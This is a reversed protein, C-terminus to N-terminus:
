LGRSKRDALVIETIDGGDPNAKIFEEIKEYTEAAGVDSRGFDGVWIRGGGLRMVIRGSLTNYLYRIGGEVVEAGVEELEAKNLVYGNLSFTKVSDDMVRDWGDDPVLEMVFKYVPKVSERRAKKADYEEEEKQALLSRLEAISLDSSM